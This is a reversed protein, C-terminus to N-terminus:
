SKESFLSMKRFEMPNLETSKKFITSFYSFNSYGAALAVESVSSNTEVLLKKAYEIRQQQLYDSISLGTQKKFVRTLYDPNLYV